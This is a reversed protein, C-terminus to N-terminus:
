HTLQSNPSVRRCSRSSLRVCRALADLRPRWVPADHPVRDLEVDGLIVPALNVRQLARDGRKNTVSPPLM